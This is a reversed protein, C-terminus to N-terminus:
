SGGREVERGLRIVARRPLTYDVAVSHPLGRGCRDASQCSCRHRHRITASTPQGAISYYFVQNLGNALCSSDLENDQPVSLCDTPKGTQQDVEKTLVVLPGDGPRVSLPETGAILTHGATVGPPLENEERFAIRAQEPIPV